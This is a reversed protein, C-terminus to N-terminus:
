VDTMRKRATYYAVVSVIGSLLFLVGILITIWTVTEERYKLLLAGVIIACLARFVASQWIRM